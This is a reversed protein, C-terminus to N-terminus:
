MKGNTTAGEHGDNTKLKLKGLETWTTRPEANVNEITKFCRIDGSFEHYWLDPPIGGFLSEIFRGCNKCEEKM